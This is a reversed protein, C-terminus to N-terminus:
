YLDIEKLSEIVNIHKGPTYLADNGIDYKRIVYWPYVYYFKCETNDILLASSFPTIVINHRLNQLMLEIPIGSMSKIVITRPIAEYKSIWDEKTRPHLKIYIKSNNFTESLEKIFEFSGEIRQDIFVIDNENLHESDHYKFFSNAVSLSKKTFSPIKKVKNHGYRASEPFSLYFEDVLSSDVAKNYYDFIKGYKGKPGYSYLYFALDKIGLKYLVFLDERMRSLRYRTTYKTYNYSALGEQVFATKAINRKKLLYYIYLFHPNNQNFTFLTGTCKKTIEDIFKSSRVLEKQYVTFVINNQNSFDYIEPSSFRGENCLIIWNDYNESGFDEVALLVALLVHYETVCLYINTKKEM